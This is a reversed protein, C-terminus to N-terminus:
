RLLENILRVHPVPGSVNVGVKVEWVLTEADGASDCDAVKNM